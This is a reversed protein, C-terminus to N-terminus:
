IPHFEFSPQSIPDHLHVNTITSRFKSENQKMGKSIEECTHTYTSLFASALNRAFKRLESFRSVPSSAYFTFLSHQNFTDSLIKMSCTLWNLNYNKQPIMSKFPSLTKLSVYMWLMVVFTVSDWMLHRAGCGGQPGHLKVKLGVTQICM